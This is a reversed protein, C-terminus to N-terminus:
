NTKAKTIEHKNWEVDTLLLDLKYRILHKTLYKKTVLKGNPSYIYKFSRSLSSIDNLYSLITKKFLYLGTLREFKMLVLSIFKFRIKDQYIFENLLEYHISLFLTDLRNEKKAKELQDIIEFEGGEIDVKMLDIKKIPNIKLFDDLRYTKTTETSIEDRIRHLLSTSSNGYQERAYLVSEGNTNSIAINQPKIKETLASNLKLNKILSQYAEPDPDIAYAYAGKTAAYLSLPGAWCGMDFFHSDVTVFSDIIDFTDPEWNGSDIHKWFEPKFSDEVYFSIDRLTIKL